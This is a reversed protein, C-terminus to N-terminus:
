NTQNTQRDTQTLCVSLGVVSQGVSRGVSLCPTIKPYLRYCTVKPKSTLLLLHFNWAVRKCCLLLHLLVFYLQLHWSSCLLDVRISGSNKKKKKRLVSSCKRMKLVFFFSFFAKRKVHCTQRPNLKDCLMQGNFATHLYCSVLHLRLIIFCDDGFSFTILLLRM